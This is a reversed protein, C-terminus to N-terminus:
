RWFIQRPSRRSSHVGGWTHREVYRGRSLIPTLVLGAFFGGLHAAFAISGSGFGAADQLALLVNQGVFLVAIVWAPVVLMLGLFLWLLPVMNFSLIPARPHLLLYGGVVGGIAGSAGVMPIVSDPEMLVQASAAAIGCALYFGVFRPKGLTDEVNDGFIHLTWMNTILHYWGGHMFMSSFVTVLQEPLGSLLRQPVLGYVALALEQNAIGAGQIWVHVAVNAAILLWTVYPASRTPNEDRIPFFM